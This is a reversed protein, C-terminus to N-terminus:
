AFGSANRFTLGEATKVLVGKYAFTLEGCEGNIYEDHTKTEYGCRDCKHITITIKAM